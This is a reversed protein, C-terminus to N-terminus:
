IRKLDDLSGLQEYELPFRLHFVRVLFRVSVIRTSNVRIFLHLALSTSSAASKIARNRFCGAFITVLHSSTAVQDLSARTNKKKKKKRGKKFKL